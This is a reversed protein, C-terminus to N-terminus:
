KFTELDEVADTPSDISELGSVCVDKYGTYNVCNGRAGIVSAARGRSRRRKKERERKM